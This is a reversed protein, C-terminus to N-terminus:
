AEGMDFVTVTTSSGGDAYRKHATLSIVEADDQWIGAITMADLCARALKDVDPRRAPYAPASPKRQNANRGSGYHSKPRQLCFTVFVRAAAYGDERGQERMARTAAEVLDARYGALRDRNSTTTVAKGSNTVFARTSGQPVPEGPVTFTLEGTM